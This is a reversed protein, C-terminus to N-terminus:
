TIRQWSSCFIKGKESSASPQVSEPDPSFLGNSSCLLREVESPVQSYETPTGPMSLMPSIDMPALGMVSYPAAASVATPQAPTKM